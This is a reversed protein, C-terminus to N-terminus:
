CSHLRGARRESEWLDRYARELKRALGATDALHGTARVAALKSRVRELAGGNNALRLARRGADCLPAPLPASPIHRAM